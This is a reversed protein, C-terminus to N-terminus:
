WQSISIKQSSASYAYVDGKYNDEGYMMGASLAIVKKTASVTNDFGLYVVDSNNNDAFVRWGNTTNTKDVVKSATGTTVDNGFTGSQATDSSHINVTGSLVLRSDDVDGSAVSFTITMSDTAHPNKFRLSNFNDDSLKIGIGADIEQETESGIIIKPSTSISNSLLKLKSGYAAFPRSEGAALTMSVKQYYSGM